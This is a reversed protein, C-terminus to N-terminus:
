REYSQAALDYRELLEVPSTTGTQGLKEVTVAAALNGTVAAEWPTAGAALAATLGAVFTDGAGVPDLPPRTPGAQFLQAQGEAYVVVGQEGLTLFVPQHTRQYLSEAIQEWDITLSAITDVELKLAKLAEQKNPKLIMQTFSGIRLRSDAIFIKSTHEAALANLSKQVRDTIIGNMEFQDTIICADLSPLTTHILDMLKDELELTLPDDNEFDIRADEQQSEYGMLIPKIYATTFRHNDIIMQTCDINHKRMLQKLLVGRWDNGLVTFVTVCGVGLSVLNAAVNAGAGCTYTEKTVPRPFHPTERSLVARTMDAYWYVDLAADGIVGIHVYPLRELIKVLQAKTLRKM